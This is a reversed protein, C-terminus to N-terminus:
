IGQLNLGGELRVVRAIFVTAKGKDTQYIIRRRVHHFATDAVAKRKSSCSAASRKNTEPGSAQTSRTWTSQAFLLLLHGSCFNRLIGGTKFVPTATARAGAGYQLYRM